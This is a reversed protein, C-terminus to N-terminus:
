VCGRGNGAGAPGDECQEGLAPTFPLAFLLVAIITFRRM